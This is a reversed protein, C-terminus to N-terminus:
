KMILKIEYCKPASQVKFGTTFKQASNLYSFTKSSTVLYRGSDKDRLNRFSM